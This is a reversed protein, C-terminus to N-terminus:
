RPLKVFDVRDGPAVGSGAPAFYLVDADALSFLDASSRQELGHVEHTGDGVVSKGPVLQLRWNARVSGSTLPAACRQLCADRPLGLSARIWPAGFLEFITFSSAPNGPLGLLYRERGDIEVAGFLTPKGPKIKTSEVIARGGLEAFAARVLDRTGMSVGGITCVLDHSVLADRLRALTEAEVDRLISLREASGGAAEIQAALAYANSNRVQGENPLEDIEVVEDGTPLVAVRPRRVVPVQASGQQALVGIAGPHLRAGRALLVDGRTRVSGRPRINAGIACSDDFDVRGDIAEYGSSKEVPVVADCGEPILGGTMVRTCSGPGVVGDFPTGALADGLLLLGGGGNELDAARVAFGDMASVDAAPVDGACLLDEALVRGHCDPIPLLEVSPDAVAHDLVRELAEEFSLMEREKM